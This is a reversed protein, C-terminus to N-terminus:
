ETVQQPTQPVSPCIWSPSNMAWNGTRKEAIHDHQAGKLETEKRGM